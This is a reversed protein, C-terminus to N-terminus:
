NLEGMADDYSARRDKLTRKGSGEAINAPVSVASRRMQLRLGYTEDPPFQRTARYVAVALDDAKQWAILKRYDRGM